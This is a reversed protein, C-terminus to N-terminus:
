NSSIKSRVNETPTNRIKVENYTHVRIINPLIEWLGDVAFYGAMNRGLPYIIGYGGIYPGIIPSLDNTLKM